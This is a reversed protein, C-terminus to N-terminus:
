FGGQVPKGYPLILVSPRHCGETVQTMAVLHKRPGILAYVNNQTRAYIGHNGIIPSTQIVEGNPRKGIVRCGLLTGINDGSLSVINWDVLECANKIAHEWDFEM